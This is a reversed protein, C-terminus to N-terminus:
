ISSVVLPLHDIRFVSGMVFFFPRVFSTFSGPLIVSKAFIISDAAIVAVGWIFCCCFTGHVTVGTSVSLVAVSAAGNIVGARWIVAIGEETWISAGFTEVFVLMSFEGVSTCGCRAGSVTVNPALISGGLFVNGLAGKSLMGGGTVVVGEM